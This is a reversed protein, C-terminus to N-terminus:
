NVACFSIFFMGMLDKCELTIMHRLNVQLYYGQEEIIHQKNYFAQSYISLVTIFM